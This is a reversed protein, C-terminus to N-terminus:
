TFRYLDHFFSLYVHTLGWDTVLSPAFVINVIDHVKNM